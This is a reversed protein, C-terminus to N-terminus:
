DIALLFDNVSMDAPLKLKKKLRYRATKVSETSIGMMDSIEKISFNMKVLACLKLDNGTLSSEHTTLRDFFGTHLNEFRLKFDEWDRDIQLHRKIVKEMGILDKRAGETAKKKVVKVSHMLEEFLQNKQVFNVTYSVLERNKFELDQKTKEAEQRAAEAKKQSKLQNSRIVFAAISVLAIMTIILIIIRTQQIEAKQQLIMIESEKLDLQRRQEATALEAELRAINNLTQENFISDRKQIYQDYYQIAQNLDGKKRSIIQLGQYVEKLWKNSDVKRAYELGQKLYNEAENINGLALKVDALEILSKAVGNYDDIQKSLEIAHKFYFEASDYTEIRTFLLGYRNLIEVQGYLFNNKTHIIGARDLFDSAAEVNDEEIFVTALKTYTTATRGDADLEEFIKLADFYYKTALENDNRDAYILGINMLCNGIGLSDGMERYLNLGGLLYELGNDYSGRAWHAVGIVRNAYALGSSDNLIEALAHAQQGYIISQVPNVIWYEFGLNNLLEVKIRDETDHKLLAYKLSDIEQCLVCSPVVKLLLVILFNRIM